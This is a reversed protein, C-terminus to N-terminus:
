NPATMWSSKFERKFCFNCFKIAFVTENYTELKIYTNGQVACNSISNLSGEKLALYDNTGHEWGRVKWNKKLVLISANLPSFMTKIHRRTMLTKRSQATPYQAWHGKRYHWFITLETSDEVFKQIKKLVFFEFNSSSFMSKIHGWNMLKEKSQATPYQAQHGRRYHWLITLETSDDM